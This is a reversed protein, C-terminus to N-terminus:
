KKITPKKSPSKKTVKVTTEKAKITTAKKINLHTMILETNSLIAKLLDKSEKSM